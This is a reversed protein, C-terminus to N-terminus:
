LDYQPRNKHTVHGLWCHFLVSPCYCSSSVCYFAVCCFGAWTDWVVGELFQITYEIYRQLGCPCLLTSPFYRVINRYTMLPLDLLLPLSFLPMLMLQLKLGRLDCEVTCTEKHRTLKRYNILLWDLFMRFILISCMVFSFNRLSFAHM